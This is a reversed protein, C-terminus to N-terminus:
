FHKHTNYIDGIVAEPEKLSSLPFSLPNALEVEDVVVFREVTALALM